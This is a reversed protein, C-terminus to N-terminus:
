SRASTQTAMKEFRHRFSSGNVNVTEGIALHTRIATEERKRSMENTGIKDLHVRLMNEFQDRHYLYCWHGNRFVLVIRQTSVTESM